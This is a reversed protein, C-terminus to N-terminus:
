ASGGRIRNTRAAAREARTLPKNKKPMSVTRPSSSVSHDASTHEEARDSFEDDNVDYGHDRGRGPHSNHEIDVDQSRASSSSVRRGRGRLSSGGGRSSRSARPGVRRRSRQQRPEESSTFEADEEVWNENDIYFELCDDDFGDHRYHSDNIFPDDVKKAEKRFGSSTLRDSSLLMGGPPSSMTVSALAGLSSGAASSSDGILERLGRLLALLQIHDRQETPVMALLANIEAVWSNNM